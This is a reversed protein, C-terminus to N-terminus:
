VEKKVGKKMSLGVGEFIEFIAFGYWMTYIIYFVLFAAVLPINDKVMLPVIGYFNYGPEIGKIVVSYVIAAEDVMGAKQMPKIMATALHWWSKMVAKGDELGYRAAIEPANNNYLSLSDKLIATLIAYLDGKVHLKSGEGSVTLGTKEALTKVTAVRSADKITVDIDVMKGKVATAQVDVSEDNKLTPDLFNASGKSLTNFLHDAYVLGNTNGGGDSGPFLPLFFMIFVAIFSGLLLVGRTFAKGNRILM